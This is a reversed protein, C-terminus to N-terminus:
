SKPVVTMNEEHWTATQSIFAAAPTPNWGLLKQAKEISMRGQCPFNLGSLERTVHIRDPMTAAASRPQVSRQVLQVLEDLTQEESQALNFAEGLAAEGTDIAAEIASAVDECYVIQFPGPNAADRNYDRKPPAPLPPLGVSCRHLMEYRSDCRQGVVAPPRFVTFPLGFEASATHLALEIRLKHGGYAQPADMARGTVNADDEKWSASDSPRSIDWSEPGGPYIMNSSICIYHQIPKKRHASIIGALDSAQQAAFDIVVDFTSRLIVAELAGSDTRDCTVVEAQEPIQAASTGNGQGRGLGRSLITVHHGSGLLRRVTPIGMLGTGGIVLVKLESRARKQVREAMGIPAVSAGSLVMVGNWTHKGM